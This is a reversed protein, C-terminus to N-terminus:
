CVPREQAGLEPWLLAQINTLFFTIRRLARGTLFM